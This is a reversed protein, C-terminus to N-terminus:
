NTASESNSVTPIQEDLNRNGNQEGEKQVLKLFKREAMECLHRDVFRGAVEEPTTGYVGWRTLEKLLHISQWSLDITLNPM